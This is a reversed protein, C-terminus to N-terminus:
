LTAKHRCIEQWLHKVGHRFPSLVVVVALKRYMVGECSVMVLGIWLTTLMLPPLSLVASAM